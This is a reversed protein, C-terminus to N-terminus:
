VVRAQLELQINDPDRFVVTALASPETLDQIGSHTIGLEDFYHVWEALSDRDPVELSVHDLGARREDFKEPLVEIHHHLGIILGTEASYLIAGYGGKEDGFHPYTDPLLALGLVQMYWEVSSDIDRVTLSIHHVGGLRPRVRSNVM